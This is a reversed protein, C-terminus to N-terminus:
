RRGLHLVFTAGTSRTPAGERVGAGADRFAKSLLLRRHPPSALFAQFAARATARTKPKWALAEGVAWGGRGAQLYGSARVRQVLTGGDPAVHDFFRRRVMDAAFRQASAGLSGVPRLAALDRRRREGNVLCLLARSARDTRAGTVRDDAGACAGPAGVAPPPAPAPRRAVGPVSACASGSCAAAPPTDLVEWDRVAPRPDALLGVLRVRVQHPGVSLGELRWPSVCSAWTGGDVACEFGQLAGGSSVEFAVATARETTRAEPGATIVAHPAADAGPACLLGIATAVFVAKGWRGRM